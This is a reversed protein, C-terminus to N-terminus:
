FLGFVFVDLKDHNDDDDYNNNNNSRSNRFESKRELM